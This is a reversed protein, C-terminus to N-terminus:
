LYNLDLILVLIDILFHFVNFYYPTKIMICEGQADEVLHM